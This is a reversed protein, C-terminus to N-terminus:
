IFCYRQHSAACDGIIANRTTSQVSPCSTSTSTRAHQHGPCIISHRFHKVLVVSNIPSRKRDQAMSETQILCKGARAGPCHRCIGISSLAGIISHTAKIGTIASPLRRHRSIRHPTLSRHYVADILIHNGVQCHKRSMNKLIPDQTMFSLRSEKPRTPFICLQLRSALQVPGSLQSGCTSPHQWVSHKYYPPINLAYLVFQNKPLLKFSFSRYEINLNFNIGWVLTPSSISGSPGKRGDMWPYSLRYVPHVTCIYIVM